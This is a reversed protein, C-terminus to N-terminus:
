WPFEKGEWSFFKGNDGPALAEIVRLVGEASEAPTLHADPGGMDTRVWGPHLAIFTIGETEPDLSLCRTYMNMTAKSGSYSYGRFQDMLSVSGGRSSVNILKPDHGKKLLGTFKQAILLAGVANVQLTKLLVDAKVDSLSEDGLHVAANNILVDLAAVEAEVLEVSKEISLQHTVDLPLSTVQGPYKEAVAELARAKEPSRCGAFVRDGRGAFQQVLEFGLGRNAGTILVRNM